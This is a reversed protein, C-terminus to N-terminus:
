VLLIYRLVWHNNTTTIGSATQTAGYANEAFGKFYHLFYDSSTDSAQEPTPDLLSYEIKKVGVINGDGSMMLGTSFCQKPELNLPNRFGNSLKPVYTFHIDEDLAKNTEADFASWVFVFGKYNDFNIGAAKLSAGSISITHTNQMFAATESIIKATRLDGLTKETDPNKVNAFNLGFYSEVSRGWMNKGIIRFAKEPNKLDLYVDVDSFKAGEWTSLDYEGSYAKEAIGLDKADVKGDSNFDYYPIQEETLTINGLFHQKIIEIEYEGPNIFTKAAGYFLVKNDVTEKAEDAATRADEAIGQVKAFSKGFNYKQEIDAPTRVGARDMKESKNLAM